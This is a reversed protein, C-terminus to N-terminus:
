ELDGSRWQDGRLQLGHRLAQQLRAMLSPVSSATEHGLGDQTFRRAVRSALPEAVSEASRSGPSTSLTTPASHRKRHSSNFSRRRASIPSYGGRPAVDAARSGLKSRLGSMSYKDEGEIGLRREAAESKMRLPDRPARLWRAGPWGNLTLRWTERGLLPM